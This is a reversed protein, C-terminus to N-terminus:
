TYQLEFIYTKKKKDHFKCCIGYFLFLDRLVPHRCYSHTHPKFETFSGWGGCSRIETYLLIMLISIKYPIILINQLFGRLSLSLATVFQRHDCIFGTAWAATHDPARLPSPCIHKSFSQLINSIGFPLLSATRTSSLPSCLRTAPVGQISFSTIM